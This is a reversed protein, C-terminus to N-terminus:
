SSRNVGVFRLLIGTYIYLLGLIYIVYFYLQVSMLNFENFM